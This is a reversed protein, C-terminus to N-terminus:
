LLVCIDTNSDSRLFASCIDKSYTHHRTKSICPINECGEFIYSMPIFTSLKQVEPQCCTLRTTLVASLTTSFWGIVFGLEVGRKGLTTIIQLCLLVSGFALFLMTTFYSLDVFTSWFAIKYLAFMVMMCFATIVSYLQMSYTSGIMWETIRLPLSFLNVINRSWLEESMTPVITNCGRGVM